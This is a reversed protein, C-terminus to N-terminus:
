RDGLQDLRRPMIEGTSTQYPIVYYHMMVFPMLAGYAILGLPALM